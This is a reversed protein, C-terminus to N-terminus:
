LDSEFEFLKNKLTFEVLESRKDIALKDFTRTKHTDVTKISIMLIEAIETLSYGKVMLQTIEKERPSLTNYLKKAQVQHNKGKLISTMEQPRLYISDRMVTDIATYLEDDVAAKPIYGSAGTEMILAVHEEDGYMTLVIIKAQANHKKIQKLVEIGNIDPLSIDLIVLDPKLSEYLKMGDQGNKAVGVVQFSDRKQLLLKLGSILIAHDDILIIEIRNESEM